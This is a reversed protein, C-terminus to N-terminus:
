ARSLYASWKADEAVLPNPLLIDGDIGDVPFPDASARHARLPDRSCCPRRRSLGDGDELNAGRENAM